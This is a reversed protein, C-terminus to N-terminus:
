DDVILQEEEDDDAQLDLQALEKALGIQARLHFGLKWIDKIKIRMLDTGFGINKDSFDIGDIDKLAPLKPYRQSLHTLITSKAKMDQSVQLAEELTSHRKKVAEDLKDNEFTAEHILCTVGLAMAAFNSNPRSDGSYAISWGDAHDLRFCMSKESHITPVTMLSSIQPLRTKLKALIDLAPGIKSQICERTLHSTNLFQIRGIGIDEISGYEEISRRYKEPCAIFLSREKDDNQTMWEKILGITGLHHDAHMHSIYILSLDRMIRPSDEGFSRKIQGLTAEGCDLLFAFGNPDRVLTGAVNRYSSPGASGTGLTIIEVDGGPGSWSRTKSQKEIEEKTSQCEAEYRALVESHENSLDAATKVESRTVSLYPFPNFRLGRELASANIANGEFTDFSSNKANDQHVLAPYADKSLHRLLGLHSAAKTNTIADKTYDSRSLYHKVSSGFSAMFNIYREDELVHPGCSHLIVAPAQQKKCVSWFSHGCLNSIYDLDPCDIILVPASQRQPGMVDQPLVTAGHKNRVAHGKQLRGFDPGPVVGRARARDVDFKGPLPHAQIFYSVAAPYPQFGLPLDDGMYKGFARLAAFSPRNEESSDSRTPRKESRGIRQESENDSPSRRRKRNPLGIEEQNEQKDTTAPYCGPTWSGDERRELFQGSWVSRAIRIVRSPDALDDKPVLGNPSLNRTSGREVTPLTTTREPLTLVPQVVINNDTFPEPIAQDYEDIRMPAVNAYKYSRQQGARLSALYYAINKPGHIGVRLEESNSSAGLLFGALGGHSEWGATLFVNKIKRLPVKQTLMQRQCGEGCNFLYKQDDFSLIISPQRATDSTPVTLVEFQYRMSSGDSRSTGSARVLTRLRNFIKLRAISSASGSVLAICKPNFLGKLGTVM